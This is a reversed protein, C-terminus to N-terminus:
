FKFLMNPDSTEIDGYEWCWREGDEIIKFGHVSWKSITVTKGMYSDMNGNSNWHDPRIRFTKIKIKKGQNPVM